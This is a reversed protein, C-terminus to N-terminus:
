AVIPIFDNLVRNITGSLDDGDYLEQVKLRIADKIPGPTVDDTEGFGAVYQVVIRYTDSPWSDVAKVMSTPIILTYGAEDLIFEGDADEYTILEVSQVPGQPLLVSGTFSEEQYELTRTIFSTGVRREVWERATVIHRSLREDDDSHDVRLDAKVQELTVPEIAPPEVVRPYLM